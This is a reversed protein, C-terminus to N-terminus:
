IYAIGAEKRYKFGNHGACLIQLNEPGDSGNAWRSTKHDVQLFRDSGCIKGTVPDKFQCCAHKAHALRKWKPLSFTKAPVAVRKQIPKQMSGIQSFSPSLFNEQEIQKQSLEASQANNKIGKNTIRKGSTRQQIIKDSVYEIFSAM